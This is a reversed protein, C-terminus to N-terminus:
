KFIKTLISGDGGKKARYMGASNFELCINGKADIAIVGGEGGLRKLRDQIVIKCAEHLSKNGYEMLASIDYAVVGRMFFEGDGTCSVACTHNNAYNGVGILPSDGVRGFRKNTMGGTSTAAALNGFSDLAVAGVTGFKKEGIEINHDLHAGESGKVKQWQQYRSENYFYDDAAFEVNQQRGFEEAGPGALLVHDSHHLVNAALSVPNKIGTVNAVAGAHLTKGNMISADMEHKGIANFVSGRGANFLEFNELSVVSAEVAALATGGNQLIDDGAMIADNLASLYRAELEPTLHKPLITGAGGHVAISTKRM